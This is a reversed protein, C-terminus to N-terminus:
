QWSVIMCIFWNIEIFYQTKILIQYANIIGHPNNWSLIWPNVTLNGAWTLRTRVGMPNRWEIAMELHNPESTSVAHPHPIGVRCYVRLTIFNNISNYPSIMFFSFLINYPRLGSWVTLCFVLIYLSPLYILSQLDWSYSFCHFYSISLM